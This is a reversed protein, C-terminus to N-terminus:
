TKLRSNYNINALKKLPLMAIFYTTLSCANIHFLSICKEKNPIKLKKTEDIDFYEFHFFNDAVNKNDIMTNNFQNVLNTLKPSPKLLLSSNNCDFSCSNTQGVQNIM